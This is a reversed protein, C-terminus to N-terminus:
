SAKRPGEQGQVHAKVECDCVVVNGVDKDYGCYQDFEPVLSRVIELYSAAIQLSLATARPM